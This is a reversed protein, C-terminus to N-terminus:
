RARRCQPLSTHHAKRLQLSRFLCQRHSDLQLPKAPRPTRRGGTPTEAPAMQFRM